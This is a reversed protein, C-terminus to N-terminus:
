YRRYNMVARLVVKSAFAASVTQGAWSVCLVYVRAYPTYLIILYLTMRISTSVSPVHIYLLKNEYHRHGCVCLFHSHAPSIHVLTARCLKLTIDPVFSTCVGCGRSIELGPLM